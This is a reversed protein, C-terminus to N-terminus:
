EVVPRAMIVDRQPDTGLPFVHEGIERFGFKRYFAIARPNREWVGLWTVDWGRRAMEDICADMLAHAVGKGKADGVVYLRQIEGPTRAVVCKPTTAWRLQAYGLLKAGEEYLLTATHPSAIEAAQIAAGYASRCHLDMNGPTNMASFTDRFTQEAIVALRAADTLLASRINSVDSGTFRGRLPADAALM